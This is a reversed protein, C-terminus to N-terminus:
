IVVIYSLSYFMLKLNNNNNNLIKKNILIKLLITSILNVISYDYIQQKKM